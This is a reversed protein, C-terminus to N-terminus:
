FTVEAAISSRLVSEHGFRERFVRRIADIRAENESTPPHLILIVRSDLRNPVGDPSDQRLWQGYANFVTFGAPFRPTVEEDLFAQWAELSIESIAVGDDNLRARGFYLSTEVWQRTVGDLPPPTPEAAVEEGSSSSQCGGLLSVAILGAALM